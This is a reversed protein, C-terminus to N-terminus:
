LTLMKLYILAIACLIDRRCAVKKPIITSSKMMFGGISRRDEGRLYHLPYGTRFRDIVIANDDLDFKIQRVQLFIRSWSCRRFDKETMVDAM